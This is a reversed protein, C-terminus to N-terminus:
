RRKGKNPHTEGQGNCDAEPWLKKNYCEAICSGVDPRLDCARMCCVQNHNRGTAWSATIVFLAISVMIVTIIVLGNSM